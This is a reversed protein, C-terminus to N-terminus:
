KQRQQTIVVSCLAMAPYIPLHKYMIKGLQCNRQLFIRIKDKM